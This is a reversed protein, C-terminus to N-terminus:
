RRAVHGRWACGRVGVGRVLDIALGEGGGCVTLFAIVIKAKKVEKVKKAAKSLRYSDKTQVLLGSAVGKKLALRLNVKM